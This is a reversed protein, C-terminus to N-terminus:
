ATDVTKLIEGFDKTTLSARGVLFGTVNGQRILEPATAGDVSGGYIIRIKSAIERGYLTSLTKQIFITMQHLGHADIVGTANKGIAWLPEYAIIVHAIDRKGIGSLSNSIQNALFTLYEGHSDREKEGVCIIPTLSDKLVADVKKAVVADTEGLARRESHGLIVYSVGMKKLQLSSVEGTSAGVGGWFADQAGLSLKKTKKFKKPLFVFPPAIVVETKKLPTSLKSVGVFLKEALSSSEPNMKWNGIVIYKSM